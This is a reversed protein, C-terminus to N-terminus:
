TARTRSPITLSYCDRNIKNMENSNVYLEIGNPIHYISRNRMFLYWCWCVCRTQTTLIYADCAFDVFVFYVYKFNYRVTFRFIWLCKLFLFFCKLLFNLSNKLLISSVFALVFDIHGHSILLILKSFVFIHYAVFKM